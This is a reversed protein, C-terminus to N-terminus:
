QIQIVIPLEFQTGDDVSAVIMRWEGKALGEPLNVYLDSFWQAKEDLEHATLTISGEPGNLTVSLKSPDAVHFSGNLVIMDGASASFSAPRDPGPWLQVWDGKELRLAQVNSPVPREALKFTVPKSWESSRGKRWTRVQLEVEGPSLEGPVGVHPRHPKSADVVITRGGQKFAVQTLESLKLPELSAAEMDLWQGPAVSTMYDAQVELPLVDNTVTFKLPPTFEGYKRNGIRINMVGEATGKPVTFGTSHSSGGAAFTTVKGLADTLEIEDNIHFGACAIHVLTGPSGTTPSVSIAIPLSWEVITITIPVSRQGDAEVVVQAPGPVLGEPVIVEMTQHGQNEDNTVSL